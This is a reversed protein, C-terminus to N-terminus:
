TTAVETRGPGSRFRVNWAPRARFETWGCSTLELGPQFLVNRYGVCAAQTFSTFATPMVLVWRVVFIDRVTRLSSFFVAHRLTGHPAPLPSCNKTWAVASTLFLFHKQITGEGSGTLLNHRWLRTICASTQKQLMNLSFHWTVDKSRQM